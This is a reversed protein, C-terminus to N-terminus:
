SKKCHLFVLSSCEKRLALFLIEAKKVGPFSSYPINVKDNNPVSYEREKGIPFGL